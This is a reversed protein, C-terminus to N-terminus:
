TSAIARFQFVYKIDELEVIQGILDHRTSYSKKINSADEGAEVRVAEDTSVIVLRVKSKAKFATSLNERFEKNGHGSWRDLSGSFEM